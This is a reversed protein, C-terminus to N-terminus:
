GEQNTTIHGDRLPDILPLQRLILALGEEVADPPMFCGVLRSRAYLDAGAAWQRRAIVRAGEARFL